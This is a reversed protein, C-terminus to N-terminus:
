ELKIEIENIGEALEYALGSSGTSHFKTPIVFDQNPAADKLKGSMLTAYEASDESMTPPPPPSVSVRYNGIPIPASISFFGQQDTTAAQATTPGVFAVLAEELPRGALSVNGKVTATPESGGGCGSIFLCAVTLILPAAVATRM